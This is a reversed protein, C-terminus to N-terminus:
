SDFQTPLAYLKHTHTCGMRKERYGFSCIIHTIKMHDDINLEMHIM